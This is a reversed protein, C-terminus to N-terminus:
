LQTPRGYAPCSGQVFSSVDAECALVQRLATGSSNSQRTSQGHDFLNQMFLTISFAVPMGIHM